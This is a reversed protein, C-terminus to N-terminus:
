LTMLWNLLDKDKQWNSEGECPIDIKAKEFAKRKTEADAKAYIQTTEVFVHGLFDRIYHIDIGARIMHMAKSHRLVHPTVSKNSVYNEPMYKRLIYTIGPRTLKNGHHNFFLPHDPTRQSNMEWANLYKRVLKGTEKMLPVTRIKRGKGYLRLTAPSECQVDAISVDIIEQVRAGSDYLLTLLAADRLGYRDAQDPAALLKKVVDESLYEVTHSETKKFPISLIRQCQLMREPHCMQVYRFFSHVAALRQNRTSISNHREEELWELFELITEENVKDLTVREPKVNKQEDLFLLLLYVTDRYSRITNHSLNRTTSLHKTFFDSICEAFDTSRIM